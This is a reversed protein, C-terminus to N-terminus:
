SINPTHGSNIEGVQDSETLLEVIQWHEYEVAVGLATKKSQM